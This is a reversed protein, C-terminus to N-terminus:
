ALMRGHGGGDHREGGGVMAVCAGVPCAEHGTSGATQLLRLEATGSDGQRTCGPLLAAAACRAPAGHNRCRDRAAPALDDDTGRQHTISPMRAVTPGRAPLLLIFKARDIDRHM